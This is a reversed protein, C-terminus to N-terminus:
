FLIQIILIGNDTNRYLTASPALVSLKNVFKNNVRPNDMYSLMKKSYDYDILKGNLLLYYFKCVQRVNASHLLGNVPDPYRKSNKSYKKGIWLGGNKNDYFKYQQDAMLQRIKDFGVLDILDSACANNSDNIMKDLKESIQSTEKIAGKKIENMVTLLISIKPLSASYMSKNENIEAYRVKYPKKLDLIGISLNCSKKLNM